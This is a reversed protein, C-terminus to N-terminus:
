RTLVTRMLEATNRAGLKEMIRARHVEITRPSIELNRAAEKNTNGNVLLQLVERERKTLASYGRIEVTRAGDVYAGFHMDIRLADRVAGLVREKDLPKPIVEEAGLKMARVTSVVDRAETLMIAPTVQLLHKLHQLAYLGGGDAFDLDIVAVDTRRKSLSDVFKQITTSFEVQFGDIRFLVGLEECVNLDSEVIHVTKTKNYSSRYTLVDNM